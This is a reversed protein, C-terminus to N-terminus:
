SSDPLGEGEETDFDELKPMRLTSKETINVLNVIEPEILGKLIGSRLKPYNIQSYEEYIGKSKLIMSIQTRDEPWKIDKSKIVSVASNTGHIKKSDNQQSYTLLKTEIESGRNELAKIQTKISVLEDVMRVADEVKIAEGENFGSNRNGEDAIINVFEPCRTKFGCYDCLKSHKTSWETCNEIEKILEVTNALLEDLQVDTRESYVDKDFKMMHWVLNIKKADPYKERVWAAYMALQKDGDAEDKDKMNQNTKYDCIFYEDGKCAFKDIRVHYKNGDGLDLVDQTELGLISMQDFPSCREYYDSLYKAGMKRYNESTYEKKNVVIDDTLNDEWEKYYFALLEELTNCKQYGLDKYLKEMASHVITGMFAEITKPGPDLKDIYQLKYRYRCQEFASLRTHSYTAMKM